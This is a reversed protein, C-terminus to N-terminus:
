RRGSQGTGDFGRVEEAVLDPRELPLWHTCGEVLRLPETGVRAYKLPIYRDGAGWLVRVPIGRDQPTGGARQLIKVLPNYMFQYYRSIARCTTDGLNAIMRDVHRKAVLPSEKQLADKLGSRMRSAMAPGAVPLAWLYGWLHGPYSASFTTNITLIGRVREPKQMAFMAAMLAGLDHAVLLVPQSVGLHDLLEELARAQADPFLARYSPLSAQTGFGPLDPAICRYEGRLLEVTDEWGEKCDPNGHLFVVPLGAGAEFYSLM